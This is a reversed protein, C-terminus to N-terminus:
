PYWPHQNNLFSFAVVVPCLCPREDRKGLPQKPWTFSSPLQRGRRTWGSTKCDRRASAFLPGVEIRLRVSARKPCPTTVIWEPDYQIILVRSTVYIFLIFPPNVIHNDLLVNLLIDPESFVSVLVCETPHDSGVFAVQIAQGTPVQLPVLIASIRYLFRNEFCEPGYM